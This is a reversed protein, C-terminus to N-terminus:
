DVGLPKLRGVLQHAAKKICIGHMRKVRLPEPHYDVDGTFRVVKDRELGLYLRM